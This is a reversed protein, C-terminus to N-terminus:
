SAWPAAMSESGFSLAEADAAAPECTPDAARRAEDRLDLEVADIRRDAGQVGDDRFEAHCHAVDEAFPRLLAHNLPPVPERFAGLRSRHDVERGAYAPLPERM